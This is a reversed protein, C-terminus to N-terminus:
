IAIETPEWIVLERPLGIKKPEGKSGTLYYNKAIDEIFESIFAEKIRSAKENVSNNLPNVLNNISELMSDISERNSLTLYIDVIEEKYDVLHKLIIGNPYRLFLIYLTKQLPTLHIETNGYDELIIKFEKTIRLKSLKTTTSNKTKNLISLAISIAVQGRGSAMLISIKEQIEERISLEDFNSDEYFDTSLSSLALPAQEESTNSEPNLPLDFKFDGKRDLRKSYKVELDFDDPLSSKADGHKSSRLDDSSEDALEDFINKAKNLFSGMIRMKVLTDEKIISIYESFFCELYSTDNSEFYSCRIDNDRSDIRMLGSGDLNINFKENLLVVLEKTKLVPLLNRFEELDKDEIYPANYKLFDTISIEEDVISQDLLIFEVSQGNIKVKAFDNKIREYNISIFNYVDRNESTEYYLIQHSKFPLDKIQEASLKYLLSNRISVSIEARMAEFLLKKRRKKADSRIVMVGIAIVFIGFLYGILHNEM